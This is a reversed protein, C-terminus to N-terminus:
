ESANYVDSLRGSILLFAAFTASYAAFAWSIQAAVVGLDEEMVRIAPYLASAIFSDMFEAFCFLFLMLFKRAKSLRPQTYPITITNSLSSPSRRSPPRTLNYPKNPNEHISPHNFISIHDEQISQIHQTYSLLIPASARKPNPPRKNIEPASEDKAEPADEDSPLAPRNYLYFDPVSSRKSRAHASLVAAPPPTYGM